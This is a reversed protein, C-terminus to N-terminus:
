VVVLPSTGPEPVDARSSAALAHPAQVDLAFARRTVHLRCAVWLLCARSPPDCLRGAEYLSPCAPASALRACQGSCGDSHPGSTPVPQQAVRRGLALTVAQGSCSQGLPGLVHQRSTWRPEWCGLWSVSVTLRDWNQWSCVSGPLVARPGTAESFQLWLWVGLGHASEPLVRLGQPHCDGPPMLLWGPPSLPLFLLRLPVSSAAELVPRLGCRLLFLQTPPLEGSSGLPWVAVLWCLAGRCLGEGARCLENAGKLFSSRAPTSAM